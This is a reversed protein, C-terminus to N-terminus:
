KMSVTGDCLRTVNLAHLHKSEDSFIPRKLSFRRHPVRTERAITRAGCWIEKRKYISSPDGRIMRAFQISSIISSSHLGLPFVNYFGIQLRIVYRISKAFFIEIKCISM